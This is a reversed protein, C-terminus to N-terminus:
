PHGEGGAARLDGARAGPVATMRLYIVVDALLRLAFFALGVPLAAYVWVMRPVPLDTGALLFTAAPIPGGGMRQAYIIGYRVLVVLLVIGLLNALIALALGARRPLADRLIPVSAVEGREYALAVGLFSVWILLYRCVEEAWILSISLGYRLGVQLSMVALLLILMWVLLTSVVGDYLLRLVHLSRM